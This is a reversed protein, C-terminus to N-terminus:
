CVMSQLKQPAGGAAQGGKARMAVKNGIGAAGGRAVLLVTSADDIDFPEKLSLGNRVTGRAIADPDAGEPLLEWEGIDSGEGEGAGVRESGTGEDGASDDGSSAALEDEGYLDETGQTLCRPALTPTRIEM